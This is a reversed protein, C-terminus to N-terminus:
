PGSAMAIRRLLRSGEEDKVEKTKSRREEGLWRTATADAGAVGYGWRGHSTGEKSRTNEERLFAAVIM